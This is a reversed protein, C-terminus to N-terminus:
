DFTIFFNFFKFLFLQPCVLLLNIFLGLAERFVALCWGVASFESSTHGTKPFSQSWVCLVGSVTLDCGRWKYGRSLGKLVLVGINRGIAVQSIEEKMVHGSSYCVLGGLKM